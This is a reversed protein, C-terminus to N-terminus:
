PKPNATINRPVHPYVDLTDRSALRQWPRVASPWRACKRVGRRRLRGLWGFRSLTPKESRFETLDMMALLVFEHENQTKTSAIKSHPLNRSPQEPAQSAQFGATAQAPNQFSAGLWRARGMARFKSASSPRSGWPCPGQFVARRGGSRSNLLCGTQLSFEKQYRTSNCHQPPAVYPGKAM